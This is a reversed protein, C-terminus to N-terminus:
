LSIILLELGLTKDIQGTKIDIDLDALKKLYTLLTDADYKKANQNALKVRYPHIKLISAINNETYGDLYLQKVQYMIRIQNALTVIIAIPEENLKIREQYLNLATLKDGNIIADILKFNNVELSKSTLLDIDEKTINKDTDKYIKIKEIETNLLTSNDGVRELLYKIDSDSMQYDGLLDKIMTINDINNCEVIEGNKDILKTIKKREDLKADNVVFILITNININNLYNELSKLDQELYKKTSSTFIYANNVIILKKDGFLSMSSADNIIQSLLTNTLDYKNVNFTDIKNDNIIKDITKNILYDVTGYLLYVM